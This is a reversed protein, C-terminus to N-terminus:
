PPPSLSYEKAALYCMTRCPRPCHAVVEEVLREEAKVKKVVPKNRFILSAWLYRLKMM